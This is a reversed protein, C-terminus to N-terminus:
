ARRRHQHGQDEQRQGQRWRGGVAESLKGMISSVGKARQRQRKRRWGQACGHAKFRGRRHEQTGQRWALTADAVKETVGSTADAVKETVGGLRDTMASVGRDAMAKGFGMVEEALRDLGLQSALSDTDGNSQAKSGASSDRTNTAM